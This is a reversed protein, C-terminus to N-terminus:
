DVINRLYYAATQLHQAAEDLKHFELELNAYEIHEAIEEKLKEFCPDRRSMPFRYSPNIQATLPPTNPVFTTNPKPQVPAQAAPQTSNNQINGSNRQMYNQNPNNQTMGQNGM